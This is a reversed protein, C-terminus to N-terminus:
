CLRCQDIAMKFSGVIKRYEELCDLRGANKHAGGDQIRGLGRFKRHEESSELKGANKQTWWSQQLRRLGGVRRSEKSDESCGADQMQASLFKQM